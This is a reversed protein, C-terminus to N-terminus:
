LGRHARGHRQEREAGDRRHGAARQPKDPLGPDTRRAGPDAAALRQDGRDPGDAGPVPRDGPQSQGRGQAHGRRRPPYLRRGARRHSRPGRGAADLWAGRGPEPRGPRARQLSGAPRRQCDGPGCQVSRGPGPLVAVPAVAAVPGAHVDAVDRRGDGGAGRRRGSGRGRKARGAGPGAGSSPVRTRGHHRLRPCGRPHPRLVRADGRGHSRGQLVLGAVPRDGSRVAARGPAVM